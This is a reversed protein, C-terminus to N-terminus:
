GIEEIHSAVELYFVKVPDSTNRLAQICHQWADVMLQMGLCLSINVPQRTPMLM